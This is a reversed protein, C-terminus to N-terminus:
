FQCKFFCLIEQIVKTSLPRKKWQEYTVESSKLVTDNFDEEIDALAKGDPIWVGNEFHLYFSRYDMNITGIVASFENACLKAHVFGPTYEYIKVGAALLPGYHRNTLLRVTKKDPVGPTVIRVEVGSKAALCLMERITDDLILYPTMININKRATTIMQLFMDKAQNSPNNSPGDAFPQCHGAEKLDLTPVPYDEIRIKGGSANWMGIFILQMGYVADGELRIGTDKWHGFPAVLNAYRDSINIGGTYAYRGDIVMIKQHNRFNLFLSMYNREVPNFSLIEMGKSKIYKVTSDSLQFVSGADDYMIYIKVGAQSKEELLDCMKDWIEGDAIIFFSIFIYDRAERMKEVMDEFAKEGVEFYKVETNSYLPYGQNYLYEAIKKKQGEDPMFDDLVERNKRQYQNAKDISAQIRLHARRNVVIRGWLIYMIHGVIPFLLLVGIWYIKYAADREQSILPFMIIMSLVNIFVYVFLAYQNLYYAGVVIMAIEILLLLAIISYRLFSKLYSHAKRGVKKVRSPEKREM